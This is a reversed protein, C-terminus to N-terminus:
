RSPRRHSAAIDYPDAPGHVHIQRIAVQRLPRREPRRLHDAGSRGAARGRGGRARGHRRRVRRLDLRPEVKATFLAAGLGTRLGCAFLACRDLPAEAPVKALAIEPMVTYESFTSTGMFHRIPEGNRSFRTTGDPLHGLNQEARIAM